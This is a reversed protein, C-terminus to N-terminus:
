ISLFNHFILYLLNFYVIACFIGLRILNNSIVFWFENGTTIIEIIVLIAFAVAWFLSHYVIRKTFFEYISIRYDKKLAADM